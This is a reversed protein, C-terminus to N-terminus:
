SVLDSWFRITRPETPPAAIPTFKFEAALYSSLDHGYYIIDTQVVSFVPNGPECPEAPLFRHSYVPILVPATAVQDRATRIALTFDEPKPGWSPYWFDNHEVDFCLGDRPSQLWDSLEVKPADRWNPFGDSVPLALQLFHRLDPPYRFGYRTQTDEIEADTLGPACEVGATVLKSIVEPLCDRYAM